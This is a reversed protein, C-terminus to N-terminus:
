TGTERNSYTHRVLKIMWGLLLLGGAFFLMFVLFPSYQFAGPMETISFYPKLYAARVLDRILIMMFVTPLVTYLTPMTRGQFSHIVSLIGLAIAPLLLMAIMTGAFSHMNLGDELLIGFFLFGFGFNTITAFGFWRLGYAIWQATQQDGQRRRFEYYLAISLGGVAIAATLFHFYRPFLTPDMLNLLTGSPNDFYRVWTEPRLMLTFNNSMFFGILLLVTVTLGTVAVRASGLSDYRHKYVYAAYYGLILLGIISLWFVAMLISSTYLFNGYLVQVFLLPAVGFNVTFAIAFPLNRAITRCLPNEQEPARFHNVFAIIGTGLMINMLILHLFLTATLLLQFWVWPVQLTDPSPILAAPDM